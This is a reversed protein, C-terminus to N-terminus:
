VAIQERTKEIMMLVREPTAPITTLRAGTANYIANCIAAPVTITSLEGAGKAGFPGTPEHVNIVPLIVPNAVDQSTPVVYTTFNPANVKGENVQMDEM